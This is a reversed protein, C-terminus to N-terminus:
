SWDIRQLGFPPLELELRGGSCPVARGELTRYTEPSWMAQRVTSEDLPQISATTMPGVVTVRQAEGSLNAIVARSTRRCGVAFGDLVQRHSSHTRHLVGGAFEGLDALVHYLPYTADQLTGVQDSALTGGGAGMVGRSGITEYYTISNAGARALAGYSAATWGAGFLSFQRPDDEPSPARPRLTVPSVAVASGGTFARAAEVTASQAELSEILTLNDTLHVQPTIPYGVLEWAGPEPRQRNLEAFHANSAFAMVSGPVVSGLRKAVFHLWAEQSVASAEHFVLWRAVGPRLERIREACQEVEHDARDSLLLAVELSAQLARAEDCARDLVAFWGADAMQLDVRLHAPRLHQLLDRQHATPSPANAAMQLGVRPLPLTASPDITFTPIRTPGAGAEPLPGSLRLTVSQHVRDGALVEVPVPLELPTSYTKFSGDTWNRQDEMEFIDGAFELTAEVDPTIAHRIARLRTFPQHPSIDVPFAGTRVNGDVTEVRCARGALAPVPHLVCIGIRNRVFTSRARGNAVFGITGDADGTITLEWDFRVRHDAHRISCRVVFTHDDTRVDIQERTTPVTAWNEDRVVAYIRRVVEADGLRIYHLAGDALEASLPGARLSTTCPQLRSGGTLLM